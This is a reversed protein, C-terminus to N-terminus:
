TYSQCGLNPGWRREGKGKRERMEVVECELECLMWVGDLHRSRLKFIRRGRIGCASELLQWAAQMGVLDRRWGVSFGEGCERSDQDGAVAMGRETHALGKGSSRCNKESETGLRTNSSADYSGDYSGDMPQFRAM